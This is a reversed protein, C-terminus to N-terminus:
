FSLLHSRMEAQDQSVVGAADPWNRVESVLWIRRSVRQPPLVAAYVGVCPFVLPLPFSLPLYACV